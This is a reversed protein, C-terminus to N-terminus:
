KEEDIQWAVVKEKPVIPVRYGYIVGFTFYEKGELFSLLEGETNFVEGEEHSYEDKLFTLYYRSRKDFSM